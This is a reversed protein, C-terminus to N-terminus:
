SSITYYILLVIYNVNLVYANNAVYYFRCVSVFNAMEVKQCKGVALCNCSISSTCFLVMKRHHKTQSSLIGFIIAIPCM